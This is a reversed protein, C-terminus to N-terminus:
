LSIGSVRNNKNFTVTLNNLGILTCRGTELVKRRLNEVKVPKFYLNEERGSIINFYKLSTTLRSLKLVASELDEGIKVAHYLKYYMEGLKEYDKKLKEYYQIDKEGALIAIKFTVKKDNRVSNMFKRMVEVCKDCNDFFYKLSQGNILKGVLEKNYKFRTEVFKHITEAADNFKLYEKEVAATIYESFGIM